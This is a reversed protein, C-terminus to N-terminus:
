VPYWFDSNQRLCPRFILSIQRLCPWPILPRVAGGWGPIYPTAGPAIVFNMILLLVSAHFVSTLWNFQCLVVFHFSVVSKTRNRCKLSNTFLNLPGNDRYLAHTTKISVFKKKVLLYGLVIVHAVFEGRTLKSNWTGKSFRKIRQSKVKQKYLINIMNKNHSPRTRQICAGQM